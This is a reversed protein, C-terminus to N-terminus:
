AARDTEQTMADKISFADRAWNHTAVGYAALDIAADYALPFLEAEERDLRTLMGHVRQRASSRFNEWDAAIREPTWHVAGEAFGDFLAALDAQFRRGIERVHSRDDNLLKSYLQRDELALHRMIFSSLQWRADALLDAPPPDSRDCLGLLAEGKERMIAHDHLLRELM